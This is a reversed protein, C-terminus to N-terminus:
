MHEYLRIQNSFIGSIKFGFTRNKQQCNTPLKNACIEFFFLHLWFKPNSGWYKIITALGEIGIKAHFFFTTLSLKVVDARATIGKQVYIKFGDFEYLKASAATSAGFKALVEAFAGGWCGRVRKYIFISRKNKKTMYDKLEQSLEYKLEQEQM